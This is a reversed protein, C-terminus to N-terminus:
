QSREAFNMTIGSSFFTQKESSFMITTKVRETPYLKASEGLQFHMLAVSLTLLQVEYFWLLKKVQFVSYHVKQVWFHM